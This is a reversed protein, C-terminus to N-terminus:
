VPIELHPFKYNRKKGIWDGILAGLIWCTILSILAFFGDGILGGIVWRIGTANSFLMLAAWLVGGIVSAGVIVFLARDVATSPRANIYYAFGIGLLTVVLVTATRAPSLNFFYSYFALVTISASVLVAWYLKWYRSRPKPVKNQTTITSQPNAEPYPTEVPILNKSYCYPCVTPNDELIEQRCSVCKMKGM